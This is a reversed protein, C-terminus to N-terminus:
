RRVLYGRESLRARGVHTMFTEGFDGSCKEPSTHAYPLSMALIAQNPDVILHGDGGMAGLKPRRVAREVGLFGQAIRVESEGRNEMDM